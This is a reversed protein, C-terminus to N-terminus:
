EYKSLKDKLEKIMDYLSCILDHQFKEKSLVLFWLLAGLLIQFDYRIKYIGDYFQSILVLAVGYLTPIILYVCFNVKDTKWTNVFPKYIGILIGYFAIMHYKATDKSGSYLYAANAILAMITLVNAIKTGIDLM